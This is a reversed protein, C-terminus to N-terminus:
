EDKGELLDTYRFRLAEILHITAIDKRHDLDAITRAVKLVRHYSRASLRYKEYAQEMFRMGEADLGCFTEIQERSMQSNFRPAAFRAFQVRKAEEVRKRVTKSDETPGDGTLEAYRLNKVEICIDIRDMLPKSLRELYHRRQATTCSCRSRDPYAGCPCPNMAGVLMFDAPFMYSGGNRSILIKRDEMPQRLSELATRKFEPMEDLFLVGKHALALLGAKPSIGGGTLAVDTVTHHPSVFPRERILTGGKPFKGAVSYITSVELQEETTLPPLISPLCKSLMSKGAGPEGIMIINHLGAAAIELGRRAFPQGQVYKLDYEYVAEAKAHEFDQKVYRELSCQGNLHKTLEQLTSVPYVEMERILAAEAANEHPVYCKCFGAKKAHLVLPLIGRIPGLDGSLNLEGFFVADETKGQPIAGIAQLICAAM